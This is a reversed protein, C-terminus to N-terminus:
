NRKRKKSNIIRKSKLKMIEAFSLMPQQLDTFPCKIIQFLYLGIERFLYKTIFQGFYKKALYCFLYYNFVIPDDFPNIVEINNEIFLTNVKIFGSAQDKCIIYNINCPNLIKYNRDHTGIAMFKFKREASFDCNLKSIYINQIKNNKKLYVVMDTSYESMATVDDKKFVHHNPDYKTIRKPKLLNLNFQNLTTTNYSISDTTLIM